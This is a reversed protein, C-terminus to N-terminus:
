NKECSEITSRERLFNCLGLWDLLFKMTGKWGQLFLGLFLLKLTRLVANQTAIGRRPIKQTLYIFDFTINLLRLAAPRTFKRALLFCRSPKGNSTCWERRYETEYYINDHLLCINDIMFWKISQILDLTADSFKYAVPHWNCREHDKSYALDWPLFPKNNLIIVFPRDRWFEPLSKRQMIMLCLADTSYKISAQASNPRDNTPARSRSLKRHVEPSPVVDTTAGALRNIDRHVSNRPRLKHTFTTQSPRLKANVDDTITLSHSSASSRRIDDTSHRLVKRKSYQSSIKIMMMRSYGSKNKNSLGSFVIYDNEVNALKVGGHLGKRCPQM